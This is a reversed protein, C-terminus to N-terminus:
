RRSQPHTRRRIRASEHEAARGPCHHRHVATASRAAEVPRWLARVRYSPDDIKDDDLAMPPPWRNAAARSRAAAVARRQAGTHQAPPQEWLRDYLVKIAVHLGISVTKTRGSLLDRIVRPSVRISAALSVAPFGLATLARLRNRAGAASRRGVACPATRPTVALLRRASSAHIRQPAARRRGPEGHLLRHVTMPSVDAANGIAWYSLGHGRLTQVHDRVPAAAAWPEWTGYAIRQARRRIYDRRASQSGARKDTV